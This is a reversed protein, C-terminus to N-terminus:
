AAWPRTSRPSCRPSSNKTLAAATPRAPMPGAPSAPTWGGPRRPATYVEHAVERFVGWCVPRPRWRMWGKAGPTASSWGFGSSRARSRMCIAGVRAEAAAALYVVELELPGVRRSLPPLLARQVVEAVSALSALKQEVPTIAAVQQKGARTLVVGAASHVTVVVVSASAAVRLLSGHAFLALAVAATLMVAGYALPVRAAPAGIGALAAPIALLPGLVLGGTGALGLGAATVAVAAAACATLWWGPVPDPTGGAQGRVPRSM